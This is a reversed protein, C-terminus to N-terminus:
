ATAAERGYALARGVPKESHRGRGDSVHCLPRSQRGEGREQYSEGQTDGDLLREDAGADGAHASLKRSRLRARSASPPGRQRRVVSIVAADM